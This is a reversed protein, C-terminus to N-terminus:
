EHAVGRLEKINRVGNKEMWESMEACVKGFISPGSGYVATGVGVAAAGAEIMEIADRGSSVGGMGLIPIEVEEYLQYVCRLALPKIAAGSMGGFKNSLVPKRAEANILMGTLTNIACLADAGADECAKGVEVIKYTNPTLKPMVPIKGCVGKVARTVEAAPEPELGFMQGHKASNPCSINIEIIAPKREAVAGAVEAFEEVTGGYISAILPAKIGRLGGWEKGLNKYGPTPLGVCNLAGHEWRVISPNAHGERERPGISKMTVAGAGAEAARKLLAASTGFIGSPLVTPNKMKAGCFETTLNM